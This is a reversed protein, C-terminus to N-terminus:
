EEEFKKQEGGGNQFLIYGKKTEPNLMGVAVIEGTMPYLALKNKVEEKEEKSEAYKLLYEQSKKDYANFDFGITEIDLVVKSM